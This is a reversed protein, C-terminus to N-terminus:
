ADRNFQGEIWEHRFSRSNWLELVADHGHDDYPCPRRGALRGCARWECSTPTGDRRDGDWAAFILEMAWLAIADSVAANKDFYQDNEWM